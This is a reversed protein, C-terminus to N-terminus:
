GCFPNAGGSPTAACTGDAACNDTRCQGNDTCAAGIDLQAVCTMSGTDCYSGDLCELAQDICPAGISKRAACLGTTADCFADDVCDSSLECAAGEATLAVCATGDCRLGDDTRCVFAQDPTEGSTGNYFTVGRHYTGVCPMAGAAGVTQLQCKRVVMGNMQASVCVSQALDTPQPCDLDQLCASGASGGFAQACAAPPLLDGECFGPTASIQQLGAICAEGAAPDYNSQTPMTSMFLTRCAAGDGPLGAATCCPKYVDCYRGIFAVGPGEKDSKCAVGAAALAFAVAWVFPRGRVM